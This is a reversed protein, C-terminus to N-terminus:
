QNLKTREKLKQPSSQCDTDCPHVLGNEVNINVNAIVSPDIKIIESYTLDKYLPKSNTRSGKVDIKYRYLMEHRCCEAKDVVREGNLAHVKAEVDFTTHIDNIMEDNGCDVENLNKEKSYQICHRWMRILTFIGIKVDDAIYILKSLLDEAEDMQKSLYAIDYIDGSSFCFQRLISQCQFIYDTEQDLKSM